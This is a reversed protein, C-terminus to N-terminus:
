GIKHPQDMVVHELEELKVMKPNIEMKTEEKIKGGETKMKPNKHPARARRENRTTRDKRTRSISVLHNIFSPFFKFM